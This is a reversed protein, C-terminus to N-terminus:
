DKLKPPEKLYRLEYSYGATQGKELSVVKSTLELNVQQRSPDWFLGLASFESPNFRQAVGFNAQHNFYAYAGGSVGDKVIARQQDTSMTGSEKGNAQIWHTQKVYISLLAPNYSMSATDYEPHVLMEFKRPAEATMTTAFRVVEGQLAITRELRAGDKATLTLQVKEPEAQAEFSLINEPTPGDGQKVWEEHRFRNFARAARAVDRGTPKYTM